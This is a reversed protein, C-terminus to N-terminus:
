SAEDIVGRVRDIHQLLRGPRELICRRTVSGLRIGIVLCGQVMSKGCPRCVVEANLSPYGPRQMSNYSPMGENALVRSIVLIDSGFATASARWGSVRLVFPLCIMLTAYCVM